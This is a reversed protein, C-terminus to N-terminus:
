SNRHGLLRRFKRLDDTTDVDELPELLRYSLGSQEAIAISHKLVDPGGWAIGEFLQPHVTSMGVLYYGGDRAPGWVVDTNDLATLAAALRARDLDPIDAGILLAKRIGPSELIANLAAAMRVGLHGNAQAAYQQFGPYLTKFQDAYRGPTVWCTWLYDNNHDPCCQECVNSLLAQYVSLARHDGIEAALRTKVKGLEPFKAMLGVASDPSPM